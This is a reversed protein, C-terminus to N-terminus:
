KDEWFEVDQSRETGLTLVIDGSVVGLLAPILFGLKSVDIKYRLGENANRRYRPAKLM